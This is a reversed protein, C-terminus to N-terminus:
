AWPAAVGLRQAHKKLSVEIDPDLSLGDELNRIYTDGARLGPIRIPVDKDLRPLSEILKAFNKARHKFAGLETFKEINIAILCQSEGAEKSAREAPRRINSLYAGGGLLGTIIETLLILGAGKYMGIPMPAGGDLVLSPDNTRVGQRDTAVFEAPVQNGERVWERLKGISTSLAGDYVISYSGSSPVSFGLPGNGIVQGAAGPYGTNAYTNSCAFGIMDEKTAQLCYPAASLFHNNNIVLCVGIGHVRAKQIALEMADQCALMGVGGDGDIVACVGDDRITRRTPRLNMHKNYLANLTYDVYRLGHTRIGRLEQLMLINSVSAADSSPMGAAMFLDYVFSQLKASPIKKPENM